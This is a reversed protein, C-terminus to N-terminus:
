PALLLHKALADALKPVAPEIEAAIASRLRPYASRLTPHQSGAVRADLADMLAKAVASPQSHLYDGFGIAGQPTPGAATATDAHRALFAQYDAELATAAGPLLRSVAEPVANHRAAKLLSLGTRLTMGRIGKLDAVHAEVIAALDEILTQRQPEAMLQEVLTPM